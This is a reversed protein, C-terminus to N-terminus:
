TGRGHRIRGRKEEAARAGSEWVMVAMASADLLKQFSDLRCVMGALVALVQPPTDDAM